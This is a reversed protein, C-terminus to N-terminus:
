ASCRRGPLISSRDFFVDRHPFWATLKEVIRAPCGLANCRRYSTFIRPQSAM